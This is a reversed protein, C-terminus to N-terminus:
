QVPADLFESIMGGLWDGRHVLTVHTTGPLIALRSPPLGVVDGPVGGGLLRFMEVVHEPQVIDSDGAILLTPATISQITEPSWGEIAQDMAQKKAFFAEFHEPHPSLELYADHYPSGYM